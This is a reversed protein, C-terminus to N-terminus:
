SPGLFSNPSFMLFCGTWILREETAHRCRRPCRAQLTQHGRGQVLPSLEGRLASFFAFVCTKRTLPEQCHNTQCSRLRSTSSQCRYPCRCGVQWSDLSAVDVLVKWCTTKPWRKVELLSNISVEQFTRTYQGRFHHWVHLTQNILSEMQVGPLFVFVCVVM